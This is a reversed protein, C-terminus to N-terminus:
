NLKYVCNGNMYTSLVKIDKLNNINEEFPNKDLIVFDAFKGFSISGKVNEEFSTYAGMITYSDIAEKVSLAQNQLFPGVKGDLTKRTVSCQIGNLVNPLEVPCDSGNATIGNNILTKFNYTTKARDVGVRKQVINIDYDLFISQIYSCMSLEKIKDLIEKTTIQCHVIGHRHNNRPYKRLAKEISNIVMIMIKDGIGHIAVQMNNKHAYEIMDDFQEGAYIAIGCTSEDDSYSESLYATRAGLSGDGLLKLPGIKFNDSGVGTSYGKEIFDKLEEKDVLQSQEYIRVSLNNEKELEKYADIVDQYDTKSFVTFDDTQASTIGYSNLSKCADYIMNKLQKKSPKNINDYILGLANERFIGLPEGNEDLDFAGGEVQKSLSNIGAIELAKSNVVCVHGCARILCIPYETSIEDLDYRTPFNNTDTFYDNNWGRGRVWENENLSNEDIFKNVGKKLEKLSTTFEFLNIMQLSYGYGLVHMHSDNFGATVFKNELDIIKSDEDKFSLAKENSGVYIFKGDKEVFAEKIGDIVTYVVGNIYINNM